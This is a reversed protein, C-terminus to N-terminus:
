DDEGDYSDQLEPDLEHLYSGAGQVFHEIEEYRPDDESLDTYVTGYENGDGLDCETMGGIDEYDSEGETLCDAIDSYDTIARGNEDFPIILTNYGKDKNITIIKVSDM